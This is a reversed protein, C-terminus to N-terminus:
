SNVVMRRIKMGWWKFMYPIKWWVEAPAYYGFQISQRYIKRLHVLGHMIGPKYGSPQNRGFNGKQLIDNMLSVVRQHDKETIAYPFREAPLGLYDTLIAGLGTFAKDLGIGKLHRELVEVDIEDHQVSLVRAWDCFQRLGIGDSILHQFIHVFVYLVNYTPALTPVQCGNIDVTYANALIEPMVVREWYRAHWPNAFLTLRNHLEYAIGGRFFGVDKETYLDNIPLKLEEKFYALAKNWDEPYCYFDIDGSQRLSPDSYCRALPQGKFVFVRIDRGQMEHILRVVAEDMVKHQRRIGQQVAYLNLADERELRIGSDMLGQSVLGMVAQQTALQTLESLRVHSLTEGQHNLPRNWLAAQLLEFFLKDM